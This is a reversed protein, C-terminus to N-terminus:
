LATKELLQEMKFGCCSTLYLILNHPIKLTSNVNKYQNIAIKRMFGTTVTM